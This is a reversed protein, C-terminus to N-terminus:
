AARDNYRTTRSMRSKAQHPKLANLASNAELLDDFQGRLADAARAKCAALERLQAKAVELEAAQDQSKRLQRELHDRMRAVRADAAAASAEARAARAEAEQCPANAPAITINLQIPGNSNSSISTTATAATTATTAAIPGTTSAEPEALLVALSHAKHKSLKMNSEAKLEWDKCDCLGELLAKPRAETSARKARLAAGHASSSPAATYPAADGEPLEKCDHM